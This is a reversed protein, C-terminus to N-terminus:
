YGLVLMVGSVLVGWGLGVGLRGSGSVTVTPVSPGSGSGSPTASGSSVLSATASYSLNVAKQTDVFLAAPLPYDPDIGDIDFEVTSAEGGSGTYYEEGDSDLVLMREVDGQLNLNISYHGNRLDQLAVYVYSLNSFQHLTSSSASFSTASSEPNQRPLLVDIDTDPANDEGDRKARVNCGGKMRVVFKGGRAPKCTRVFEGLKRAQAGSNQSNPICVRHAGKGGEAAM